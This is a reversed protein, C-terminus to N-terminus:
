KVWYVQGRLRVVLEENDRQSALVRNEAVTNLRVLDFYEKTFRRIEEIKAADKELDVDAANAAIWTRGDRRYLTQQDVQRVGRVVEPKAQEYAEQSTNGVVSVSDSSDYVAGGNGHVIRGAPSPAARKARSLVARNAAGRQAYGGTSKAFDRRISASARARNAEKDGLRTTEDALFSTYPTMIGYKLGLRVLEDVLETKEGNLHIEDLLFGVRRTAWLKEVFVYRLDRGCPTLTVPYEFTKPQGQYMGKITLNSHLRGEAKRLKKAEGADYRGVLMIQDGDFLDGLGRPYCDTLRLKDVKAALETMVPNKIKNYLSSVKAEIPEGPKVYDSRGKNLRVLGELLRVNVDYGVGFAFMRAGCTNAKGTDQLISKEDVQGVTPIGDTLFIVYKPRGTSGAAAKASRLMEMATQLAEHMNTGGAAETRDLIGLAKDVNRRKVAVLDGEFFREVSDNFSVVNFRDKKNLNNLVFGLAEKAQDIKKGSMSGSHDYAIVVDKPQIAKSATRPNPSVLLMFYGDEDAKPQHSILTAGVKKGSESYYVQFDTTPLVKKAEYSVVVHNPGKRKIAIDHTPSYPKLMDGASVIDVTVQVSEIARASFKETNLPYWVEVLDRDKRCVNKYTVLVKCPKGPVLPFAKTRYLGFSAYELLAPDKKKSVISEYVKRAEDAQLLKAAYEKGNVKLTMSDIAAGPPVPFLYEVEIAGSGTNVFAQEIAVAAVQDRVSINVHHYKVAWSGRVRVDPRVPVILGDALLFGGGVLVVMVMAVIQRMRLM